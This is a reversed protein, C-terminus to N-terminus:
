KAATKGTNRMAQNRLEGAWIMQAERRINKRSVESTIFREMARDAEPNQFKALQQAVMVESPHLRECAAVVLPIASLDQLYALGEASYTVVGPSRSNLGDRFIANARKDRAKALFSVDEPLDYMAAQLATKIDMGHDKAWAEFGPDTTIAGNGDKGINSPAPMDSAVAARAFGALYEYYRDPGGIHVLTRAVEQKTKKDTAKDFATELAPIIRPNSPQRELRHLVDGGEGTTLPNRALESLLTDLNEQAFTAAAFLILILSFYKM